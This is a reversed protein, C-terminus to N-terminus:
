RPQAATVSFLFWAALFFLHCPVQIPKGSQVAHRVGVYSGAGLQQDVAMLIQISRSKRQDPLDRIQVVILPLGVITALSALIILAREVRASEFFAAIGDVVRRGIHPM